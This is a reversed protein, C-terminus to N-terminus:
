RSPRALEEEVPRRLQLPQINSYDNQKQTLKRAEMRQKILELHEDAYKKLEIM